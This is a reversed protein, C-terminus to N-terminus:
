AIAIVVDLTRRGTTTTSECVGGGAGASHRGCSPLLSHGGRGCRSLYRALRGSRRPSTAIVPSPELKLSEDAAPAAHTTVLRHAPLALDITL